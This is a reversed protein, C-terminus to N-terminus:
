IMKIDKKVVRKNKPPQNGGKEKKGKEKIGPKRQIARLVLKKIKTKM